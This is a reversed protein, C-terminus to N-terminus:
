DFVEISKIDSISLHKELPEWNDLHNRVMIIITDELTKHDDMEPYGTETEIITGDALTIKLWPDWDGTHEVDGLRLIANLTNRYVTFREKDGNILYDECLIRILSGSAQEIQETKAM